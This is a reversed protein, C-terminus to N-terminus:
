FYRLVVGGGGGQGCALDESLAGEIKVLVVPAGVAGGAVFCVKVDSGREPGRLLWPGRFRGCLGRVVRACGRACGRKQREM